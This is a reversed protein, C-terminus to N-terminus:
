RNDETATITAPAAACALRRRAEAAALAVAAAYGPAVRQFAATEPHEIEDLLHRAEVAQLDERVQGGVRVPLAGTEAPILPLTSRM